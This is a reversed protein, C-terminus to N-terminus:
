KKEIVIFNYTRTDYDYISDDANAIALPLEDNFYDNLIHDITNLEVGEREMISAYFEKSVIRVFNTLKNAFEIKNKQKKSTKLSYL